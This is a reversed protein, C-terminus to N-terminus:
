EKAQAVSQHLKPLQNALCFRIMTAGSVVPVVQCAMPNKGKIQVPMDWPYRDAAGMVFDEVDQWMPNPSAQEKWAKISDGITVNAFSQEPNLGWMDGYAANSFTLVGSQSFVVIGDSLTDLLCQGLDLEARFNRALTVEASIDEILFATAGDPHPRGSVKYTQGTELSWTEQYRGDNAAAIVEAIEQRWNKYNKPEPMRRNERLLDFFSMMTPRGSLFEASLNTLDILAPNFIALQRKRDFIALGISLHAFTKALTQVFNRQAKEARVVADLCTARIVAGGEMQTRHIQYWELSGDEGISLSARQEKADKQGVIDVAFLPSIPDPETGTAHRYLAAYAFNHWTVRGQPCVQWVAQPNSTTIARLNILETLDATESPGDRFAVRTMPGRFSIAVDGGGDILVRTEGFAAVGPRLPFDPVQKLIKDRLDEWEHAGPELSFRDQADPTAHHLAGEEFLLVQGEAGAEASIEAAPTIRNLWWIAIVASILSGTVVIMLDFMPM